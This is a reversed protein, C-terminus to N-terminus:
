LKHGVSGTYVSAQENTFEQKCKLYYITANICSEETLSSLINNGDKDQSQWTGCYSKTAYFADDHLIKETM